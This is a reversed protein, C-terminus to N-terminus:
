LSGEAKIRSFGLVKIKCTLLLKRNGYKARSRVDLDTLILKPKAKKLLNIFKVLATSEAKFSMTQSILLWDDYRNLDPLSMSDVKIQSNKAMKKLDAQLQGGMLEASQGVYLQKKLQQEKKNTKDFEAQWFASRAHLVKLRKTKKRVQKISEVGDKYSKLAFPIGKVVIGIALLGSFAIILKKENNTM